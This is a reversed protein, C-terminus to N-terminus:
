RTERSGLGLPNKDFHDLHFVLIHQLVFQDESSACFNLPGPDGDRRLESPHGCIVFQKTEQSLIVTASAIQSAPGKTFHNVM